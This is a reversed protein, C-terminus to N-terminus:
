SHGFAEVQDYDTAANDTKRCSPRGQLTERSQAEGHDLLFIPDGSVLAAV